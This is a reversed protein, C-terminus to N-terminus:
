LAHGPLSGPPVLDGRGVGVAGHEPHASEGSLLVGVDRNM